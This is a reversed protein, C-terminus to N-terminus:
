TQLASPKKDYIASAVSECTLFCFAQQSKQKTHQVYGNMAVLIIVNLALKEDSTINQPIQLLPHEKILEIINDRPAQSKIYDHIQKFINEFWQELLLRDQTQLSRPDAWIFKNEATCLSLSKKSYESLYDYLNKIQLSLYCTADSTPNSVILSNKIIKSNINRYFLSVLLEMTQLFTASPYISKQLTKYKEILQQTPNLDFTQPLTPAFYDLQTFSLPKIDTAPISLPMAQMSKLAKQYLLNLNRHQELYEQKQLQLAFDFNDKLNWIHLLEAQSVEPVQFFSAQQDLTLELKTKEERLKCIQQFKPHHLLKTAFTIDSEIKNIEDIIKRAEAAFKSKYKNYLIRSNTPDSKIKWIQVEFEQIEESIKDESTNLMDKLLPDLTMQALLHQFKKCLPDGLFESILKVPFNRPLDDQLLTDVVLGRVAAIKQIQETIEIPQALPRAARNTQLWPEAKLETILLNIKSSLQLHTNKLELFKIEIIKDTVQKLWPILLNERFDKNTVKNKQSLQIIWRLQKILSYKFLSSADTSLAKKLISKIILEEKPTAQNQTQDLATVLTQTQDPATVLAQAQPSSSSMLQYIGYNNNKNIIKDQKSEFLFLLHV